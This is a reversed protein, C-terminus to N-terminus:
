PKRRGGRTVRRRDAGSRREVMSAEDDGIPWVESCAACRWSLYAVGEEVVHQPQV